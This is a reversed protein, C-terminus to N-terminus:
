PNSFFELLNDVSEMEMSLRCERTYSGVHPTLVVQPLKTLPGNYPENTFTDLWAGKIIGSEIAEVLAAEDILGGRAANMPYAGPKIKELEEAGIIIEEGSVHLSVIDARKLAESLPVVEYPSGDTEALPDVVLIKVHFPGLLETVRQGIRGFGIIAITKGELQGGIKKSWKGDHLERDMLPIERLLCLLAGLTLEAVANTPGYPTSYVKIGLEAAAAQDVNSMGSGCRSIVKLTTKEMVDRDLPELGAIIGIVDNALLELLEEKTLKRKYPNDVVTFGATQLKELPAKDLQAFTSPGLLIKGANNSNMHEEKRQQETKLSVKLEHSDVM